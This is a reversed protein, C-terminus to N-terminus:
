GRPKLAQLKRWTGDGPRKVEWYIWGNLSPHDGEKTLVSSSAADSPSTYSKGDIMWKGQEVRVRVMQGRYDMRLDTGHPLVVGKWSWAAGQTTSLDDGKRPADPQASQQPKSATPLRLLRRLADNEPEDFGRRELEIARHVDFDISITKM